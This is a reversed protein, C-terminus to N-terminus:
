DPLHFSIWSFGFNFDEKIQLIDDDNGASLCKIDELLGRSRKIFENKYNGELVKSILNKMQKSNKEGHVARILIKKKIIKDNYGSLVCGICMLAAYEYRPYLNFKVTPNKDPYKVPFISFVIKWLKSITNQDFEFVPLKLIEDIVPIFAQERLLTKQKEYDKKHVLQSRILKYVKQLDNGYRTLSPTFKETLYILPHKHTFNNVASEDILSKIEILNKCSPCRGKKKSYDSPIKFKKGCEPCVAKMEM